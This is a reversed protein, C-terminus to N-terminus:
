NVYVDLKNKNYILKKILDAELLKSNIKQVEKIFKEINLMLEDCWEQIM